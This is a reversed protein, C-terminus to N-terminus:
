LNITLTLTDFLYQNDIIIKNGTRVINKPLFELLDKLTKEEMDLKKLCNKCLPLNILLTNLPEMKLKNYICIDLAFNSIGKRCITEKEISTVKKFHCKGKPIFYSVPILLYEKEGLTIQM